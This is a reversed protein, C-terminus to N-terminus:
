HDEDPARGARSVQTVRRARGVWAQAAGAPSRPAPGRLRAAPGVGPSSPAHPAPAPVGPALAEARLREARLWYVSERDDFRVVGPLLPNAADISLCSLLALAVAWV